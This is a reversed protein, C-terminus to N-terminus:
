APAEAVQAAKMEATDTEEESDRAELAKRYDPPMVQVFRSLAARWDALLRAALASGTRAHHEAVLDHLETARKPDVAELEVMETNV